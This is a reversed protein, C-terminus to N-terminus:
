AEPTVPYSVVPDYALYPVFLQHYQDDGKLMSAHDIPISYITRIFAWTKKQKETM